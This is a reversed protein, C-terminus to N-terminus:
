VSPFAKDLVDGRKGDSNHACSSASSGTRSLFVDPVVDGARPLSGGYPLVNGVAAAPVPPYCQSRHLASQNGHHYSQFLHPLHILIEHCFRTYEMNITRFGTHLQIYM